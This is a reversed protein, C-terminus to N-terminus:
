EVRRYLDGTGAEKGDGYLILGSVQGSGEFEFAIDDNGGHYFFEREATAVFELINGNPYRLLLRSGNRAVELENTGSQYRGAYGDLLAISLEIRRKVPTPPAPQL